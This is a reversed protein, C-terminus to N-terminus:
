SWLVRRGSGYYIGGAINLRCPDLVEFDQQMRLNQFCYKGLNMM